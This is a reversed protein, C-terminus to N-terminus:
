ILWIKLFLIQKNQTLKEFWDCFIFDCIIFFLAIMFIWGFWSCIFLFNQHGTKVQNIHKPTGQTFFFHNKLLPRHTETHSETSMNLVRYRLFQFLYCCFIKNVTSSLHMSLKWTKKFILLYSIIYSSGPILGFTLVEFVARIIKKLISIFCIKEHKKSHM